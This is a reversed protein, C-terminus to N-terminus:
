PTCAGRGNCPRPRITESPPAPRAVPDKVPGPRTLTRHADPTGMDQDRGAGTATGRGADVPSHTARYSWPVGECQELAPRRRRRPRHIRLAEGTPGARHRVGAPAGATHHGQSSRHATALGGELTRRRRSSRAARTGQRRRARAQRRASLLSSPPTRSISAPVTVAAKRRSTPRTSDWPCM